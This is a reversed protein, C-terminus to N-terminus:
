APLSPFFVRVFAPPFPTTEDEEGEEEEVIVDLRNATLHKVLHLTLFLAQSLNVRRVM